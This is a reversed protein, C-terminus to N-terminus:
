RGTTASTLLELAVGAHVLLRDGPAVDGVLELAVLEERGAEDRCVADAGDLAHVTLAVAVDGCTLCGPEASCVQGQTGTLGTLDLGSM